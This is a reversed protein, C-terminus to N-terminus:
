LVSKKNQKHKNIKFRCAHLMTKVTDDKKLRYSQEFYKEADKYTRKRFFSYGLGALSKAGLIDKPFIIINEFGKGDGFALCRQFHDISQDYEGLKYCIVATEYNFLPCYPLFSLAEECISYTDTLAVKQQSLLQLKYQYYHAQYAIYKVNDPKMEALLLSVRDLLREAEALNETGICIRALDLIQYIDEPYQDIHKKLLTKNRTIKRRFINNSWPKHIIRLDSNVFRSVVKESVALKEHYIGRYRLESSNRFIRLGRMETWEPHLQILLLYGLIEKKLGEDRIREKSQEDLVEDADLILIWDSKAHELSINRPTSFDDQWDHYLVRAGFSQAISVTNDHSGTDVVIIEDVIERVSDLCKALYKEEDKVIMCLSISTNM